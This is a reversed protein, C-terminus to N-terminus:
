DSHNSSQIQENRRALLLQEFREVRLKMTRLVVLAISGSLRAVLRAPLSQSQPMRRRELFEKTVCRIAEVNLM